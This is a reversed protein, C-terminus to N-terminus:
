EIIFSPNKLDKKNYRLTKKTNFDLIEKGTQELIIQGAATDWEMTPFLRPYIDAKGEAIIGFKISSGKKIIKYNKDSLNEIFKKTEDNLHSHSCIIIKEKNNEIPLKISSNIIKDLSLNPIDFLNYNDLKFSGITNSAFYLTNLCPACIVGIIPKGNKALAINVAFEGNRNIFEKTGDLPDVIWTYKYNKRIDYSIKESEESIIPINTNKLINCIIINSNKDALTIPSNDEKLKYDFDSKYIELISDAANFSATLAIKLLNNINIEM